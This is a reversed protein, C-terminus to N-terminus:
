ISSSGSALEKLIYNTLQTKSQGKEPAAAEASRLPSHEAKVSCPNLKGAEAECPSRGHVHSGAQLTAQRHWRVMSM